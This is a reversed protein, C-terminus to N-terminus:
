GWECKLWMEKKRWNEVERNHLYLRSLHYIAMLILCCHELTCLQRRGSHDDVSAYFLDSLMAHSIKVSSCSCCSMSVAWIPWLSSINYNPPKADNEQYYKSSLSTMSTKRCAVHMMRSLPSGDYTRNLISLMNSMEICAYFHLYVLLICQERPAESLIALDFFSLQFACVSRKIYIKINAQTIIQSWRPVALEGKLFSLIVNHQAKVTISICGCIVLMIKLYLILWSNM